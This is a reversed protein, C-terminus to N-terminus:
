CEQPVGVDQGGWMDPGVRHLSSFSGKLGRHGVERFAEPM